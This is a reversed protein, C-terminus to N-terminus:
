PGSERWRSRWLDVREAHGGAVSVGAWGMLPLDDLAVRYRAAARVQGGRALTGPDIALELSGNDLRYGAAVDRGRASGRALAEAPAEALAAARAAERAVAGVGLQAQAVRGVGVVGVALVLLLPAVLALEVLAQGAAGARSAARGPV